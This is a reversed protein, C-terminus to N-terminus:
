HSAFSRRYTTIVVKIYKKPNELYEFLTDKGWSIGSKKNALSYSYGGAQGSQRGFFGYLNPGQKHPYGEGVTHCQSCSTKFLQSGKKKSPTKPKKEPKTEQALERSEYLALNTKGQKILLSAVDDTSSAGYFLFDTSDGTQIQSYDMQPKRVALDDVGLSPSFGDEAIDQKDKKTGRLFSPTSSSTTVTLTSLAGASAFLVAKRSM